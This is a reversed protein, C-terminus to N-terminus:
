GLDSVTDGKFPNLNPLLVCGILLWDACNVNPIGLSSVLAVFSADLVLLIADELSLSEKNSVM